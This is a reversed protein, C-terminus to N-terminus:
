PCLNRLSQYNGDPECPNDPYIYPPRGGKTEISVRGLELM